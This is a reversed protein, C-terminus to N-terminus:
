EFFTSVSPFFIVGTLSRSLNRSLLLDRSKEGRGRRGHVQLTTGVKKLARERVNGVQEGDVREIGGGRRCTWRGGHVGWRSAAGHEGCCGLEGRRGLKGCGHEGSRGLEGCDHKGRWRLKSHDHKGRRGVEGYDHEGRRRLESCGARRAARGSTSPSPSAPGPFPLDGCLNSCQGKLDSSRRLEGDGDDARQKRGSTAM